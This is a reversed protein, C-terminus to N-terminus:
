RMALPSVDAALLLPCMEELKPVAATSCQLMAALRCVHWCICVSHGECPQQAHLVILMDGADHATDGLFDGPLVLTHIVRVGTGADGTSCYCVAVVACYSQQINTSGEVAICHFLAYEGSGGGCCMM